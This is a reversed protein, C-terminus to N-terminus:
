KELKKIAGNQVELYSVKGDVSPLLFNKASTLFTQTKQALYDLFINLRHEDLEAEADDVIFVPYFGHVKRHIEMQSFYLALLCSRQQGASGYDVLSKGNVYLKLDDRHPGVSTYGIRRDSERSRLLKERFREEADSGEEAKGFVTSVYHMKLEETGFLGSPLTQKMRDVYKVRNLLIRSGQKVITEDWSDLLSEDVREKSERLISLVKNRQKLARGYLALARIHGPYITAMARDLFARRDAPSKRVINLHDYTFALVHLNGVFDDLPVPKGHLYMKKETGSIRVELDRVLAGHQVTGEIRCEKEGHLICERPTSTRFSRGFALFYIAEIINTKGQGNKGVFLTTGQFPAIELEQINRYHFLRLRTLHV